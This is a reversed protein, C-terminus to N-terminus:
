KSVSPSKWLMTRTIFLLEKLTVRKDFAAKANTGGFLLNCESESCKLGIRVHMESLTSPSVTFGNRLRSMTQTALIFHIGCVRYLSIIDALRTACTNAVRRNHAESFLVQFEDAVVLIRPMKKGTYKRYSTIDKVPYGKQTEETFMDLRKQMMGILEDLVSQGFEQMADLALVKIHPIKHNAYVQFETGSKFGILYLNLEDPSYTTLASMIITHLLSLSVLVLRVLLLHMILHVKPFLIVLNLTSYPEM